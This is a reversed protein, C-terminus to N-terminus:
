GEGLVRSAQRNHRIVHATAWEGVQYLDITGGVVPHSIGFREGREPTVADLARAMTLGSAELAAIAEMRRVLPPPEVAPAATLRRPIADAIAPWERPHFDGPLHHAGHVDGSILGAFTTSVRAVHWGIQAASWGGEVPRREAADDAVRRLRAVLRENAEAFSERLHRVRAYHRALHSDM